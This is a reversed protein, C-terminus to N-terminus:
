RGFRRKYRSRDMVGISPPIAPRREREVEKRIERSISKNIAIIKCSSELCTTYQLAKFLDSGVAFSGHERVIAALYGSKYIPPLLKAVEESGIKEKARVVPIGRLLLQGECDMPTIRNEASMSLAVGHPPHAHIIANFGTEKYIARHVPLERSAVKDSEGEEGLSVEVIDEERLHGLMADRKTIYIKDGSRMSMNGSHSDILGLMYLDRGAVSFEEFNYM